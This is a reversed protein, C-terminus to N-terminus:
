NLQIELYSLRQFTANDLFLRLYLNTDTSYFSDVVTTFSTPGWTIGFLIFEKTNYNVEKPVMSLTDQLHSENLDCLGQFKKVPLFPLSVTHSFERLNQFCVYMKHIEKQSYKSNQTSFMLGLSDYLYFVEFVDQTEYSPPMGGYGHEKYHSKYHHKEIRDPKGLLKFLSATDGIEWEQHNFAIRQTNGSIQLQINMAGLPIIYLLFALAITRMM